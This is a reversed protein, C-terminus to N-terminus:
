GAAKKRRPRRRKARDAVPAPQTLTSLAAFPSDKVPGAKRTDTAAQRARTSKLAAFLALAQERTLGLATLDADPVAGKGKARAEGLAELTEVPVAWRGAARLGFASLLRPSPAPDPLLTLPPQLPRFPERAVFAQAVM